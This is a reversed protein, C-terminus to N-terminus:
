LSGGVCPVATPDQGGGDIDASYLQRIYQSLIHNIILHLDEVVGYNQSKITICLDCLPGLRGSYDGIIAATHCGLERGRRAATLLNPSNGSVSLCIILDGSTALNELQYAFIEDNTIDNSIASVISANDSLCHMKIRSHGPTTAGKNFDCVWHSACAASGGNGLIFIQRRNGCADLMLSLLSSLADIDLLELASSLQRTYNNYFDSLM